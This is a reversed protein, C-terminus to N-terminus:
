MIVRPLLPFPPSVTLFCFAAVGFELSVALTAVSQFARLWLSFSSTNHVRFHWISSQARSFPADLPAVALFPCCCCSFLGACAPARVMAEVCFSTEPESGQFGVDDTITGIPIHIRESAPTPAFEVAFSPPLTFLQLTATAWEQTGVGDQRTQGAALVLVEGQKLLTRTADAPAADSAMRAATCSQSSSNPQRKASTLLFRDWQKAAHGTRGKQGCRQRQQQSCHWTNSAISCWSM